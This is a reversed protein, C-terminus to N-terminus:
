VLSLVSVVLGAMLPSALYAATSTRTLLRAPFYGVAVLGATVVVGYM